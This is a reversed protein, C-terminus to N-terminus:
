QATWLTVEVPASSTRRQKMKGNLCGGDIRNKLAHEDKRSTSVTRKGSKYRDPIPSLGARLYGQAGM